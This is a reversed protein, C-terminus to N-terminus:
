EAAVMIKCSITQGNSLRVKVTYTGPKPKVIDTKTEVTENPKVTLDVPTDFDMYNQGELFIMQVEVEGSGLNTISVVPKDNKFYATLRLSEQPNKHFGTEGVMHEELILFGMLVGLVISILTIVYTITIRIKNQSYM